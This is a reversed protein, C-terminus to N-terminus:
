YIYTKMLSLLGISFLSTLYKQSCVASSAAVSSQQQEQKQPQQQLLSYPMLQGGGILSMISGNLWNNATSNSDYTINYGNSIINTLNVVASSINQLATNGTLTWTSTFDLSVSIFSQGYGSYADGSWNSYQILTWSISSGNYAILSGNLNCQAVTVNVIAPLLNSNDAYGAYYNFEQTVQSYNATILIGSTTNIVTNFLYATAIVNGFWLAPMINGLTTLRSNIFSVMAGNQRIMSSFIVTGGLLGATLHCNIFTSIQPGDSFLAPSREARGIVNTATITGLAYFIASGIGSTHAISNSVIVYGAPSDGSFSSCRNGGSYHSIYNGVITGYGGAYLGHAAPGSSYLVSNEIYVYSGNGYSYINAAGNHTTINLHDFYSSSGNQVNIAANVGFFSAQLLDSSYGQKYINVFSMNLQAGNGVVIVSTDNGTASITEYSISLASGNTTFSRTSKLSSKLYMTPMVNYDATIANDVADNALNIYDSPDDITISTFSLHILTCFFLFVYLSM